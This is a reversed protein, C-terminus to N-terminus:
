ENEPVPDTMLDFGANAFSALGGKSRLHELLRGMLRKHQSAKSVAYTQTAKSLPNDIKVMEVKDRQAHANAVHM